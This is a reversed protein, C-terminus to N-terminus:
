LYIYINFLDAIQGTWKQDIQVAGRLNEVQLLQAPLLTVAAFSSGFFDFRFFFFWLEVKGVPNEFAKKGCKKWMNIKNWMKEWTCKWFANKWKKKKWVCKKWMNKVHKHFFTFFHPKFMCNLFMHFFANQFHSFCTFLIHLCPFLLCNFLEQKKAWKGNKKELYVPLHCLWRKKELNLFKAQPFCIQLTTEKRTEALQICSKAAYVNKICMKAFAANVHPASPRVSNGVHKLGQTWTPPINQKINESRETGEREEREEREERKRKRPVRTPWTQVIPKESRTRIEDLDRGSTTWFTLGCRQFVNKHSPVKRVNGKM